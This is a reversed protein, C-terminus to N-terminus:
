GEKRDKWSVIFRVRGNFGDGAERKRVIGANQWEMPIMSLRSLLAPTSGRKRKPKSVWFRLDLNGQWASALTSDLSMAM